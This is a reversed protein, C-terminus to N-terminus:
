KDTKTDSAPTKEAKDPQVNIPPKGKKRGFDTPGFGKGVQNRSNRPVPAPRQFIQKPM